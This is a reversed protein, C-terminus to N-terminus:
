FKQIKGFIEADTPETQCLKKLVDLLHCACIRLSKVNAQEEITDYSFKWSITNATEEIGMYSSMCLFEKIATSIDFPIRTWALNIIYYTPDPTPTLKVTESANIVNITETESINKAPDDTEELSIIKANLIEYQNELKSADKGYHKWCSIQKKLNARRDCMRLYEAINEEHKLEDLQEAIEVIKTKYLKFRKSDEPLSRINTKMNVRRKKLRIYEYVTTM